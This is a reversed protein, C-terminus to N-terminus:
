VPEAVTRRRTTSAKKDSGQRRKGKLSITQASTDRIRLSSFSPLEVSQGGINFSAPTGIARTLRELSSLTQSYYHPDTLRTVVSATLGARIAVERKSLGSEKIARQLALSVPNPLAPTVSVLEEGDALATVPEASSLADKGVELLTESLAERLRQILTDRDRATAYVGHVGLVAGSWNTTGREISVSYEQNMLENSQKPITM